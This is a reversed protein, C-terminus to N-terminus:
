GDAQVRNRGSGKARFLARDARQILEEKTTLEPHPYASVGCSVTLELKRGEGFRHEAIRQRLRTAIAVAGQMGTEPLIVAFEEGGYRAVVDVSRQGDVLLMAIERLAADGAAVGHQDNLAKFDDVDILLLALDKGYRRARDFEEGLRVRFYHYNRVGTLEDSIVLEYQRVQDRHTGELTAYAATLERNKRKLEQVTEYHELARRLTVKLEAADWPKTVFYYVHGRNIADIIEQVDTYGTLILRVPEPHTEIVRSLFETGSMTPMRQDTVIASVHREGLIRLGEEPTAATIVEEVFDADYFARSFSELNHPEDDVYLISHGVLSSYVCDRAARPPHHASAIL